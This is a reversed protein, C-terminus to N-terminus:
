PPPMKRTQARYITSRGNAPSTVIIRKRRLKKMSAGTLITELLIFGMTGGSKLKRNAMDVFYSGLGNNGDAIRSHKKKLEKQMVIRGM